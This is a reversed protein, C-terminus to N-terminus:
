NFYYIHSQDLRPKNFFFLKDNKYGAIKNDMEGVLLKIEKCSESISLESLKRQVAEVM